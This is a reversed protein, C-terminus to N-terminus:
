LLEIDLTEAECKPDGKIPRGLVIRIGPYDLATKKCVGVHPEIDGTNDYETNFDFEDFEIMKM